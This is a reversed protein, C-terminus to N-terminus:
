IRWRKWSRKKEALSSVGEVKIGLSLEDGSVNEM